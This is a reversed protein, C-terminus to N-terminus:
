FFSAQTTKSDNMRYSDIFTNLQYKVMERDSWYLSHEGNKVWVTDYSVSHNLRDIVYPVNAPYVLDDTTSHIFLIRNRIKNWFPEMKKLEDFHSMKEKNAVMLFEPFLWPVKEMFYSIPYIREEGPAMSSSMLVGGDLFSPYDMMLRAAVTGGYSTGFVFVKSYKEVYKSAIQFVIEAQKKVSLIPRGFSSYGYGPRDVLLFDTKKSLISDKVLPVWQASSSPSGHLLILLQDNGTEVLANRISRGDYPLYDITVSTTQDEVQAILEEDTIRFRSTYVWTLFAILAFGLISLIIRKIKM